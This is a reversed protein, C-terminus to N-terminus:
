IEYYQGEHGASYQEGHVAQLSAQGALTLIQQQEGCRPQTFTIRVQTDTVEDIHGGHHPLVEGARAKFWEGASILLWGTFQKANGIIGALQPFDPERDRASCRLPRRPSFPDRLVPLSFQRVAQEKQEHGIQGRYAALKLTVNLLAGTAEASDGERASSNERALSNERNLSNERALSISLQEVAVPTASQTLLQQLLTVLGLYPLQLTFTGQQQLGDSLAADKAPLWQILRGGAANLPALIHQPLSPLAAPSPAIAAIATQWEARSRQRLLVRQQQSLHTQQAALQIDLADATRSFPQVDFGYGAAALVLLLSGLLLALQKDTLLLLRHVFDRYETRM